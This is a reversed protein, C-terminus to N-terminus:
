KNESEIFKVVSDDNNTGITIDAIKKLEDVANEVAISKDASKLMIMDNLNDGFATVSDAKAFAKVEKAGNAKSAEASYVEVLWDDSYSDKYFAFTVGQVNKLKETVPLLDEYPAFISLYVPERGKPIDLFDDTRTFRDGLMETRKKHFDRMVENDLEIYEMHMEDNGYLFMFPHLRHEEFIDIVDKLAKIPIAHYSLVEEKETDYIFVGNMLVAPAGFHVGKILPPLSVLSRATAISFAIGKDYFENIKQKTYDSLHGDSKLLTGDMDSIYLTKM